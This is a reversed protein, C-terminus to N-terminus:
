ASKLRPCVPQDGQRIGRFTSTFSRISRGRPLVTKPPRGTVRREIM